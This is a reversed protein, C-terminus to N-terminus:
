GLQEVLWRDFEAAAKIWSVMTSVFNGFVLGDCIFMQSEGVMRVTGDDSTHTHVKPWLTIRNWDDVTELLRPKDDLGYPRDYFTRVALTPLNGEGGFMFYMRFNDWPAALDGEEDILHKIEMEDLLQKILEQDPVVQSSDPLDFPSVSPDTPVLM